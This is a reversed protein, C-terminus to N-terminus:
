GFCRIGVQFNITCWYPGCTAYAQFNDPDSNAVIAGCPPQVPQANASPVIALATLLCLTAILLAARM